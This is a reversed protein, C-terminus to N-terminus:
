IAIDAPALQITTTSLVKGRRRRLYFYLCVSPLVCALFFVGVVIGVIAGTGLLPRFDGSCGARFEYEIPCSEIENLCKVYIYVTNGDLSTPDFIKCSTEWGNVVSLSPYIISSDPDHYPTARIQFTSPDSFLYDTSRVNLAYIHVTEEPPCEIFLVTGASWTEAKVEMFKNCHDCLCTETRGPATPALDGPATPALDGPATPALDGSCGARFEYEIPCSEIENLCKVYIYVTNGDLSTPDFIECSTEWGNVVSLSPYIISSDPDHYPTARIQFTSPDSFLYDTSRVNLAYVHVTEEPPCEIFLVTGASWTEAEVEMFKNCHDCLCTETRGPATPALDGPATPALDGPATPALDGSCGARFEYEIPCSEIENLCKVYIYVTNGDLSTPDFIECSTEWGNVVSLSPYIISSDPDHYPTARIQFTSPDSFLYDTSRVNLAYVHVTEEPPCEIFLVTGASWTEAEVEMFKNCHDCVCTQTRGPRALVLLVLCFASFPSM